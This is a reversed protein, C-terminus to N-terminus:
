MLSKKTIIANNPDLDNWIVDYNLLSLLDAHSSEPIKNKELVDCAQTFKQIGILNKQINNIKEKSIMYLKGITIHDPYKSSLLDLATENPIHYNKAVDEISIIDIDKKSLQIKTTQIKEKIILKDIKELHKLIPKLPVDKKFVFVHDDSISEIESCALDSNVGVILYIEQKNQQNKDFIIRLKAAKRELYEKTWFGVIEFYVKKGFREFLFDPIMAKGDVILPNPERSIKWDDKKTFYQLFLKEFNKELLSDFALDDNVSKKHNSIQSNKIKSSNNSFLIDSIPQLFESSNNKGTNSMEFQYIKSGEDNKRIISGSIRWIPANIIWPLLKAMSTGYRDTMKFLSLPGELTCNISNLNPLSDNYQQDLNYMLGYRKVNRLVQKWYLGGDVFFKMTTCRFLLTQALSLNYWLLLNKPDIFNFKKLILNEENDAWMINEVENTSLANQDAIKQIIEQRHVDSLAIGQASSEKFLKQRITKPNIQSNLASEFVSRRELLTFLGRVLKYDYESEFLSIKKLLEGKSIGNKHTNEFFTVLKNALEYASGNGFNLSCFLPKITNKNIKTRLLDSSLM